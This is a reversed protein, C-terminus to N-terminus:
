PQQYGVLYKTNKQMIVYMYCRSQKTEQYLNRRKLASTEVHIETYM